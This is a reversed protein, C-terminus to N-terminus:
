GDLRARAEEIVADLGTEYPTAHWYRESFASSDFRYPQTTQYSMEAVERMMPSFLGMFRLLGPTAARFRPETGAATAARQMIERGTIDRPDTPTHWVRGYAEEDVALTVLARAIDPTYGFSHPLDPDGLWDARKGQVIRDIVFPGVVSNAVNPGYFDPARAILAQLRGEAAADLLMSAIRARVEGKKSAPRHLTTETMGDTQLGYMYVNDLFVLRVGEAACADIANQMVVPWDRRWAEIRYPLGVILYAVECGAVAARTSEADTLDAQVQEVRPDAADRSASRRVARVQRGANGLEAILPRGIAGGAGLVVDM